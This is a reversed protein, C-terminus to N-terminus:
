GVEAEGAIKIGGTGRAVKQWLDVLEQFSKSGGRVHLSLHCDRCVTTIHPLYDWCDLNPYQPHKYSLHHAELNEDIGCLQCRFNDREFVAIKTEAWFESQLYYHYFKKRSSLLSRFFDERSM